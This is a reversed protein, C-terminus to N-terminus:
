LKWILAETWREKEEEYKQNLYVVIALRGEESFPFIQYEKEEGGTYDFAYRQPLVAVEISIEGTEEEKKQHLRYRMGKISGTFDEKKIINLVIFTKEDIM